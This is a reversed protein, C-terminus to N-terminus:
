PIHSFFRGLAEQVRKAQRMQHLLPQVRRADEYSPGDVEQVAVVSDGTFSSVNDKFIPLSENGDVDCNVMMMMMMMRITM